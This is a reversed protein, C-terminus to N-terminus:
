WRTPAPSKRKEERLVRLKSERDALAGEINHIHRDKDVVVRANQAITLFLQCFSLVGRLDAGDRTPAVSSRLSELDATRHTKSLLYGARHCPESWDEAAYVQNFRRNLENVFDPSATLLTQYTPMMLLWVDTNGQAFSVWPHPAEAFIKAVRDREPLGFQRHELLPQVPRKLAVSTYEVVLSEAWRNTPSDFPFAVYLGDRSASSNRWSTRM